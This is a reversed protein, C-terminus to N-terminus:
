RSSVDVRRRIVLGTVALAFAILAAGLLDFGGGGSPRM